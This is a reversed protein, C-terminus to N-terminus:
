KNYRKEYGITITIGRLRGNPTVSITHSQRGQRDHRGKNDGVTWTCMCELASEARRPETERCKGDAVKTWEM